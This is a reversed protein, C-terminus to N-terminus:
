TEKGKRFSLKSDFGRKELRTKDSVKVMSVPSATMVGGIFSEIKQFALGTEVQKYFEVGKLSPNLELKRKENDNVSLLFKLLKTVRIIAQRKPDAATAM